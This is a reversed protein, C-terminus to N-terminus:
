RKVNRVFKRWLQDDSSQKHRGGGQNTHSKTDGGKGQKEGMGMLGRKANFGVRQKNMENDDDASRGQQQLAEYQAKEQQKKEKIWESNHLRFNHAYSAGLSSVDESLVNQGASSVTRSSYSRAAAGTNGGSAAAAINKNRRNHEEQKKMLAIETEKINQLRDEVSLIVEAIGTGGLMAGGAGVDGEQPADSSNAAATSTASVATSSKLLQVYLDKKERITTDDEDQYKRDGNGNGYSTSNGSTDASGDNMQSQIYQEMALKHKKRLVGGDEDDGDDDDFEGNGSGGGRRNAFTGELRDKLDQNAEKAIREKEKEEEDDNDQTANSSKKMRQKELKAQTRVFSKLKKSKKIAQIKDLTTYDEDHDEDHDSKKIKKNNELKIEHNKMDNKKEMKEGKDDDEDDTTQIRKRQNANPLKRKRPKKFLPKSKTTSTSTSTNM